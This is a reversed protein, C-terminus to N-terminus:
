VVEVPHVPRNLSVNRMTTEIFTRISGIIPLALGIICWEELVLADRADQRLVGTWPNIPSYRKCIVNDRLRLDSM